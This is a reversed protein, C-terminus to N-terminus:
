GRPLLKELDPERDIRTVVDRFYDLGNVGVAEATRLLSLIGMATQAGNDNLFFPWSRLGIGLPRVANLQTTTSSLGGTPWISSCIM